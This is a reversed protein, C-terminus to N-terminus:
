PTPREVARGRMAGSGSRSGARITSAARLITTIAGVRIISTASPTFAARNRSVASPGSDTRSADTAPQLPGIGSGAADRRLPVM